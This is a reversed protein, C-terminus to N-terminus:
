AAASSRVQPAEGATRSLTTHNLATPSFYRHCVALVAATAFEKCSFVDLYVDGTAEAFHATVSSTEILQVLTYGSAKPDHKAFHELIPDGFATMGICDVLDGCFSRITEESAVAARDCGGMDVILHQGWM